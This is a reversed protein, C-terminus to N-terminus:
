SRELSAQRTRIRRTAPSGSTRRPMSTAPSSGSPKRSIHSPRRTGAPEFCSWASTTTPTQTTPAIELLPESTKPAQTDGLRLMTLALNNRATVFDPKLRIAERFHPIAERNFGLKALARAYNQLSTAAHPLLDLAIKFCDLSEELRGLDAYALGLNTQVM